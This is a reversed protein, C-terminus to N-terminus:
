KDKVRYRSIVLDDIQKMEQNLLEKQHLELARDKLKDIAKHGKAYEAFRKQEIERTKDRKALRVTEKSKEALIKYNFAEHNQQDILSFGQKANEIMKMYTEHQKQNLGEIYNETEQYAKNARALKTEQLDKLIKKLRLLTDFKYKFKRAM